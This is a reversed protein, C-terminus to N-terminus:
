PRRFMMEDTVVTDANAALRGDEARELRATRGAPIVQLGGGFASIDVKAGLSSAWRMVSISPYPRHSWGFRHCGGHPVSLM